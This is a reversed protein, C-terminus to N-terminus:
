STKKLSKILPNQFDDAAGARYETSLKFALIEVIEKVTLATRKAQEDPTEENIEAEPLHLTTM